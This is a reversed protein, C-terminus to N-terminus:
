YSIMASNNGFHYSVGITCTNIFGFGSKNENYINMNYYRNQKFHISYTYDVNIAWNENIKFYPTIGIMLTIMEDANKFLNNEMTIGPRWMVDAGIGAHAYLGFVNTWNSFNAANSIDAIAQVAAGLLNTNKDNENFIIDYEGNLMIGWIDNFMYKGYLQFCGPKFGKSLQDKDIPRMFFNDGIGLGVSWPNLKEGSNQSFVSFSMLAILLFLSIKKMNVEM